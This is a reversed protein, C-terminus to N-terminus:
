ERPLHVYHRIQHDPLLDPYFIAVLDEIQEHTKDLAEYYWPQFAWV